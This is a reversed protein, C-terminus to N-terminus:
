ATHGDFEGSEPVNKKQQPPMQPAGPGNPIGRPGLKERALTDETPREEDKPKEPM